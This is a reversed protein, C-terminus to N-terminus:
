NTDSDFAININQNMSFISNTIVLTYEIRITIMDNAPLIYEKTVANAMIEEKTYFGDQSTSIKSRFRYDEPDDKAMDYAINSLTIKIGNGGVENRNVITINLVANDMRPEDTSFNINPMTWSTKTLGDTRTESSFQYNEDGPEVWEANAVIQLNVNTDVLNFSIKSRVTAISMIVAYAGVAAVVVVLLSSAIAQLIPLGKM